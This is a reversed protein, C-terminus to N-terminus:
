KNFLSYFKDNLWGMPSFPKAVSSIGDLTKIGTQYSTSDGRRLLYIVGDPFISKEGSKDFARTLSAQGPATEVTSLNVGKNRTFDWTDTVSSGEKLITRNIRKIIKANESIQIAYSGNPAITRQILRAPNLKSYRFTYVCGNNLMQGGSQVAKQFITDVSM